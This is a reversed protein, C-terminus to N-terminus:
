DKFRKKEEQVQQFRTLTENKIQRMRVKLEEEAKDKESNVFKSYLVLIIINLVALIKLSVSFSITKAYEEISDAGLSTISPQSLSLVALAVEEEYFSAFVMALSAIVLFVYVNVVSLKYWYDMEEFFLIAAKSTKLKVNQYYLKAPYFFTRVLIGLYVFFSFLTLMVSDTFVVITGVALTSLAPVFSVKFIRGALINKIEGKEGQSLIEMRTDEPLTNNSMHMMNENLIKLDSFRRYRPREKEQEKGYVDNKAWINDNKWNNKSSYVDKNGFKDQNKYVQNKQLNSYAGVSGHTSDYVDNVAM